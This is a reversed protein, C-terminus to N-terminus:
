LDPMQATLTSGTKRNDPDAKSLMVKLNVPVSEGPQLSAAKELLKALLKNSAAAIDSNGARLPMTDLGPNFPLSVFINTDSGDQKTYVADYGINLHILAVQSEKKESTSGTNILDEVKNSATPKITYTAM